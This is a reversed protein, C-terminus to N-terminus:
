GVNSIRDEPLGLISPWARKCQESLVEIHRLSKLGFDGPRLMSRRISGTPFSDAYRWVCIPPVVVDDEMTIIHMDFRPASYDPNPLSKGFDSQFFDRTTCWKRWQWYVGAPLDAGLLIRRGPLYGALATALPGAGFWFALVIPRYSWPHDRYHGYGAGVAIVREVRKDHARFPFTLGGISHGLLWLPGEPALKRLASEAAAQDEIGWTAMTATSQKMPSQRSAGFDRYDYTLVGVGQTAAWRAIATYYRQPVGTAGHLVLHAQPTGAAPYFRGALRAGPAEIQIDQTELANSM